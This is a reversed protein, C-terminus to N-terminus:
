GASDAVLEPKLLNVGAAPEPIDDGDQLSMRLWLRMAEELNRIAEEPTEGATLCGPWEHVRALYGEEPDGVVLRHYSRRMVAQMRLELEAPAM